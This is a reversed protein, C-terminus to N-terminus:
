CLNTGIYNYGKMRNKKNSLFIYSNYLYQVNGNCYNVNKAHLMNHTIQKVQNASEIYNLQECIMLIRVCENFYSQSLWSLHRVEDIYVRHLANLLTSSCHALREKWFQELNSNSDWIVGPPDMDFRVVPPVTDKILHDEVVRLYLFFKSLKLKTKVYSRLTSKYLLRQATNQKILIDDYFVIDRRRFSM